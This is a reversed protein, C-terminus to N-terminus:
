KKIGGVGELVSSNFYKIKENDKFKLHIANEINDTLIQRFDTELNKFLYNAFSGPTSNIENLYINDNEDLIFDFRVIGKLNLKEYCSKAYQKIKNSIGDNLEVPCIRKLSEMGKTEGGIYKDEFTLYKDDSIPQEFYSYIFEDFYKYMAINIEKINPLFKEILIKSDFQFCYSLSENLESDSKCVKIGISSGLNSPKLIIPYDLEKLIKDKVENEDNYYDEESVVIFSVNSIENSNLFYKFACKDLTISAGLVGCNLYPINNLEFLGALTGDEGNIGHVTFIAFDIINLPKLNKGKKSFLIPSSPTLFVEKLKLDDIPYNDLDLLRNDSYWEGYKNIYIPIVNFLEEDLFNIIQIGTIISIDHECNVGGFIVAVNKKM